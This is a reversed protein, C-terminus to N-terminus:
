PCAPNPYKMADAIVAVAACRLKRIQPDKKQDPDFGDLIELAQGAVQTYFSGPLGAQRADLALGLLTVASHTDGIRGFERVDLRMDVSVLDISQGGPSNVGLEGLFISSRVMYGDARAKSVVGDFLALIGPKEWAAFYEGPTSPKPGRQEVTIGRMYKALPERAFISYLARIKDRLFNQLAESAQRAAEPEAELGQYPYIILQVRTPSQAAAPGNLLLLAFGIGLALRCGISAVRRTSHPLSM